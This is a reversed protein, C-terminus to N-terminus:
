WFLRLFRRFVFFSNSQPWVMCERERVRVFMAKTSISLSISFAHSHCFHAFRTKEEAAAAAVVSVASLTCVSVVGSMRCFHFIFQHRWIMCFVHVCKPCNTQATCLSIHTHMVPSRKTRTMTFNAHYFRPPCAFRIIIRIYKIQHTDGAMKLWNNTLWKVAYCTLHRYIQNTRKRNQKFLQVSVAVAFFWIIM